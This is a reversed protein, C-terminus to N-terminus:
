RRGRRRAMDLIELLLGPWGGGARAWARALGADPGLDPNANIELVFPRGRADLRVDVRAYGRCGALRWAFAADRRL